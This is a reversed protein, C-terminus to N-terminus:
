GSRERLAPTTDPPAAAPGANQASAAGVAAIIAYLSIGFSLGNRVSRLINRGVPFLPPVSFRHRRTQRPSHTRHIVKSSIVGRERFCAEGTAVTRCAASSGATGQDTERRLQQGVHGPPRM